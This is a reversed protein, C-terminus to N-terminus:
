IRIKDSIDNISKKMSDSISDFTSKAEEWKEKSADQLENFKAELESQKSKLDTIMEDYKKKGDESAAAKKAKLENIKASFEHMKQKAKAQFVEKNM